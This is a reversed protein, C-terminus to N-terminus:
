NDLAYYLLRSILEPFDYGFSKASQPLLSTATFGPITNIELYYINNYEDIIFDIRSMGKCGFVSYIKSVEKSVKEKLIKPIDAPVIFDSMGKVYKAEYDFFSNKPRVELIPLVISKKNGIVGATFERGKIYKEIFVTNCYKFSEKIYHNFEEENNIMFLGISSGETDPKLVHPYFLKSKDIKKHSYLIIYEPTLIDNAKFIHKTFLKSMTIASTLQNCGSYKINVMDLMGQLTGDEGYRGHLANFVLTINNNLLDNLINHNVDFLIHNINISNLADSVAKGSKLSVERESSLGGYLVAIKEKKILEIIENINNKM